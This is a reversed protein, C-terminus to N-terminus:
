KRRGGKTAQTTIPAANSLGSENGVGDLATVAYSYSTSSAVTTDTYSLSAIAGLRIGNRYVYYSAIGSGGNDTSANWTLRVGKTVLSAALNTPASPAASDVSITASGQGNVPHSPDSGDSDTATV